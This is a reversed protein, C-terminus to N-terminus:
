RAFEARLIEEASAVRGPQHPAVVTVRSALLTELYLDTAPYIYPKRSVPDVIVVFVRGSEDALAQAKDTATRKTTTNMYTNDGRAAINDLTGRAKVM